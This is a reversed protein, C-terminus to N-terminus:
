VPEGYSDTGTRWSYNWQGGWTDQKEFCVLEPIEHGQKEASEFARLQAIGSPGAGIIAVRKNKMVMEM